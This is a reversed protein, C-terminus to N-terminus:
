KVDGCLNMNCSDKHVALQTTLLNKDVRRGWSTSNAQHKGNHEAHVCRLRRAIYDCMIEYNTEATLDM